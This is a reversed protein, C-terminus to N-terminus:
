GVEYDSGRSYARFKRPRGEVLGVAEFSPVEEPKAGPEAFERSQPVYWDYASRKDLCDWLLELAPDRHITQARVGDRTGSSLQHAAVVAARRLFMSNAEVLCADVIERRQLGDGHRAFAVAAWGRLYDPEARDMVIPNWANQVSWSALTFDKNNKVIEATTTM